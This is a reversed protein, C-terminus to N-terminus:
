LQEKMFRLEIQLENVEQRLKIVEDILSQTLRRYGDLVNAGQEYDNQLNLADDSNM